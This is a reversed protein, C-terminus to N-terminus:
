EGKEYSILINNIEEVCWEKAMKKKAWRKRQGLTGAILDRQTNYCPNFANKIFM